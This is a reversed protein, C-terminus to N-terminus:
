LHLYMASMCEGGGGGKGGGGRGLISSHSYKSPDDHSPRPSDRDSIRAMQSSLAPLSSNIAGFLPMHKSIRWKPQGFSRAVQGRQQQQQQGYHTRGEAGAGRGRTKVRAVEAGKVGKGERGGRGGAGGAGKGGRTVGKGRGRGPLCQNEAPDLPVFHLDAHNDDARDNSNDMHKDHRKRGDRDYNTHTWDSYYKHLREANRLRHAHGFM